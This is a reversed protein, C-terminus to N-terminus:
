ARSTMPQWAQNGGLRRIPYGLAERIEEKTCGAWCRYKRPDAISIALNDHEKDRGLLACSPCQSRYDKGSRRGRRVYTLIRFEPHNPDHAPLIIPRKPVLDPPMTLGDVLSQMQATGVKPLGEIFGLQAAFNPAADCFWFREGPVARHLGLPGRIANGFEEAGIHDQRPFIEIGEARGNQIAINLRRSINCLYVRLDSALQPPDTFVWLHAGRRSRELTAHVGESKLASQLKTLDTLASPYDADAVVWKSRQTEPNIAYLAITVAGQLHRLVTQPCLRRENVPWRQKDFWDESPRFYYHKGKADPSANQVTFAGRNAFLRMYRGALQLTPQGYGGM